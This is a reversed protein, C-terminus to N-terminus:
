AHLGFSCRGESCQGWPGPERRGARSDKTQGKNVHHPADVAINYKHSLETLLGAVKDILTNDNEGVGHTKVFPDISVLDINYHKILTELSDRLAGPRLKGLRDLEMLKGDDAKPTWM